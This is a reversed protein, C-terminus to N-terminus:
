KNMIFQGSFVGLGCKGMKPGSKKLVPSASAKILFTIGRRSFRYGGYGRLFPIQSPYNPLGRGFPPIFGWCGKLSYGTTSMAPIGIKGVPTM